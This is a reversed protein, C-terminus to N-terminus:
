PEVVQAAKRWDHPQEHLGGGHRGADEDQGPRLVREAEGRDAEDPDPPDIQEVEHVADVSEGAALGRRDAGAQQQERTGSGADIGSRISAAATAPAAM